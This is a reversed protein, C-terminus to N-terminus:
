VNKYNLGTCKFNILPPWLPSCTMPGGKPLAFYPTEFGKRCSFTDTESPLSLIKSSAGEMRPTLPAIKSGTRLAMVELLGKRLGRHVPLWFLLFFPGRDKYNQLSGPAVKKPGSAMGLSWSFHLKVRKLCKIGISKTYWYWLHNLLDLHFLLKVYYNCNDILAYRFPDPVNISTCHLCLKVTSWVILFHNKKLPVGDTVLYMYQLWAETPALM